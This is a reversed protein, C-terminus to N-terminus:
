FSAPISSKSTWTGVNPSSTYYESKRSWGMDSRWEQVWSGSITVPHNETGYTNAYGNCSCGSWGCSESVCYQGTVVTVYRPRTFTDDNDGKACHVPDLYGALGAVPQVIITNKPSEVAVYKRRMGDTNLLTTQIGASPNNYWAKLYNTDTGPGIYVSNYIHTSCDGILFCAKNTYKHYPRQLLRPFDGQAVMTNFERNMHEILWAHSDLMGGGSGWPSPLQGDSGGYYASYSKGLVAKPTPNAHSLIQPNWTGPNPRTDAAMLAPCDALADRKAWECRVWTVDQTTMTLKPKFIAANDWKRAEGIKDVQVGDTLTATTDKFYDANFYNAYLIGAYMCDDYYFSLAWAASCNWMRGWGWGRFQVAEQYVGTASNVFKDDKGGDNPDSWSWYANDRDTARTENVIKTGSRAVLTPAQDIRQCDATISADCQVFHQSGVIKGVWKAVQIQNQNTSVTKNTRDRVLTVTGTWAATFGGSLGTITSTYSLPGDCKLVKEDTDNNAGAAEKVETKGTVTAGNACTNVTTSSAQASGEKSTVTRNRCDMSRIQADLIGKLAVAMNAFTDVSAGAGTTSDNIVTTIRVANICEGMEEDQWGVTATYPVQTGGVTVTRNGLPDYNVTRKQVKTGTMTKNAELTGAPNCDVSQYETRSLTTTPTAPQDIIFAIVPAGVPINLAGCDGPITTTSNNTMAVRNNGLATGLQDASLRARLTSMLMAGNDGIGKLAFNNAADRGDIWTVQMWPQDAGMSCMYSKIDAPIGEPRIGLNTLNLEQSASLGAFWNPDSVVIGQLQMAINGLAAGYFGGTEQAGASTQAMANPDKDEPLCATLAASCGLVLLLNWFTKVNLMM